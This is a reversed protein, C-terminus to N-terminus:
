TVDCIGCARPPVPFRFYAVQVSRRQEQAGEVTGHSKAQVVCKPSVNKFNEHDHCCLMLGLSPSRQTHAQRGCVCPTDM